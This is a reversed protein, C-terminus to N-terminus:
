SPSRTAFHFLFAFSLLLLALAEFAVAFDFAAIILGTLVPGITQGIDMIMSLAGMASGYHRRDMNDSVFAPTSSTVAAFGLGYLLSATAMGFFDSTM